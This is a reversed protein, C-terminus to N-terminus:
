QGGRMEIEGPRFIVVPETMPDLPFRHVTTIWGTLLGWAAVREKLRDEEVPVNLEASVWRIAPEIPHKGARQEM